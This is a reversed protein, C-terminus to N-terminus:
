NECDSAVQSFRNTIKIGLERIHSGDTGCCGGALRINHNAMLNDISLAFESPNGTDSYTLSELEEFTRASPNAKIGLFRQRSKSNMDNLAAKLSSTPVCNVMYGLPRSGVSSDIREIADQLRTGDLVKGRPCIVFSLLYPVNFKECACAIGVAESVAPLTLGIVLDVNARKLRDIQFSHFEQSEKVGLAENANYADGKCGVDGAIFIPVKQIYKSRLKQLFYVSEENANGYKSDLESLRDKDARWSPAISIMPLNLEYAIQFYDEYIGTLIERGANSYVLGACGIGPVLPVDKYRMARESIAGDMLVFPYQSFNLPSDTMFIVNYIQRRPLASSGGCYNVSIAPSAGRNRSRLIPNNHM